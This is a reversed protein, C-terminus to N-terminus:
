RKFVGLLVLALSIIGVIFLITGINTIPEIMTENIEGVLTAGAFSLLLGISICAFIFAYIGM